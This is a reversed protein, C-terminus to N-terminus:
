HAGFVAKAFFGALVAETLDDTIYQPDCMRFSQVGECLGILGLALVEAPMQLPTGVRQAFARAYGTFFAHKERSFANFHVRFKADRSALLKAEAWLLFCCDNERFFQSYFALARAEMEERTAGDQLISNLDIQMREHDRRLLEMLLEAKSRFNSYFAGRTYGAAEAVDEVSAAVFGKKMFITQAADLLRLRTQEKSEERTLRKRKM